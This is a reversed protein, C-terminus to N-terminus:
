NEDKAEMTGGLMADNALHTYLKILGKHNFTPVQVERNFLVADAVAVGDSDVVDITRSAIDIRLNDGDILYKIPGGRKAEPSVHGIIPGRSAGSFRGDTILACTTSLREDNSLAETLYFMEPMGNARPGCYKVIIATYEEIAGSMIAEFADLESNFARVKLTVDRMNLPLGSAKIVSGLPAVNGKLCLIHEDGYIQPQCILAERTLGKAALYKLNREFFGSQKLDEINERMTKGTVTLVELDLHDRLIDFLYPVGGAYWFYESGHEGVPRVNVIPIMEENIQNIWDPDFEIGLEQCIAPIHLLANTSGGVAVHIKMANKISSATVIQSPKLPSAEILDLYDQVKTEINKFEKIHTPMLASGPLALGLAEGIVQMTAATGMFACAGNTPCCEAKLDLFEQHTIKGKIYDTNFKGVQELTIGSKGVKMVGGPIFVGPIDNRCMAMLTGPIGKDCSSLYVAFDYPSSLAQLELMNCIMERSPLSYYMGNHGQAMGDCIDTAYYNFAKYKGKANLNDRIKIAMDTLHVSGPHSDGATSGIFVFPKSFDQASCGIGMKLAEIEPAQDRLKQHKYM